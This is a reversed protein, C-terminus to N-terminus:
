MILQKIANNAVLYGFYNKSFCTGNCHENIGRNLISISVRYSSLAPVVSFTLLMKLLYCTHKHAVVRRITTSSTQYVAITHQRSKINM